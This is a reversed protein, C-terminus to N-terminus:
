IEPSDYKALRALIHSLSPEVVGNLVDGGEADRPGSAIEKAHPTVGETLRGRIAYGWNHTFARVLAPSLRPPKQMKRRVLCGACRHLIVALLMVLCLAGQPHEGVENDIWFVRGLKGRSSKYNLLPEAGPGPSKNQYYPACGAYHIVLNM